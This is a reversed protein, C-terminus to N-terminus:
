VKQQQQSSSSATVSSGMGLISLELYVCVAAFVGFIAGSSVGLTNLNSGILSAAVYLQYVALILGFLATAGALPRTAWNSPMAVLMLGSLICALAVLLLLPGGGTAVIGVWFAGEVFFLIPM